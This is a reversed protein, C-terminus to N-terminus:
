KLLLSAAFTFRVCADHVSASSDRLPFHEVFEYCLVFVTINNSKKKNRDGRIFIIIIAGCLPARYVIYITHLICVSVAVNLCEDLM